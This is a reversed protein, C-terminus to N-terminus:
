RLPVFREDFNKAAEMDADRLFARVREGEWAPIEVVRVSTGEEDDKGSGEDKYSDRVIKWWRWPARTGAFDVEQKSLIRSIEALAIYRLSPVHEVVSDFLAMRYENAEEESEPSRAGLLSLCMLPSYAEGSFGATCDNVLEMLSCEISEIELMRLNPTSVWTDENWVPTEIDIVKISELTLTVLKATDCCDFFTDTVWNGGVAKTFTLWSVGPWPVRLGEPPYRLILNRLRTALPNSSGDGPFLSDGLDLTRLNPFLEPICTRSPLDTGSMALTRVAPLVTPGDDNADSEEPHMDIDEQEQPEGNSDHETGINDDEDGTIDEEGEEDEEDEDAGDDDDDSMSSDSLLLGFFTITHLLPLRALTKFLKETSIRTTTNRGLEITQLTRPLLGHTYIQAPTTKLTLHVLHSLSSTHQPLLNASLNSMFSLEHLRHAAQIIELAQRVCTRREVADEATLSQKFTISHICSPRAPDQFVFKHLRAVQATTQAQMPLHSVVELLIDDPIAPIERRQGPQRGIPTPRPLEVLEVM